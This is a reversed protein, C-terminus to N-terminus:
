SFLWSDRWNIQRSLFLDQEAVLSRIDIASEPAAGKSKILVVHVLEMEELLVDSPLTM